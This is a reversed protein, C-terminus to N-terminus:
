ARVQGAAVFERVVATWGRALNARNYGGGGMGLIRGAGYRDAMVCLRRAAHAHAAATFELHAIPDGAMSDAGCQFLIFEPEAAELFAEVREWCQLFREDGMRPRVPINLKTGAAAGAGTESAHGTGPYLARGDEHIDAIFLEPDAEFAYFMGDGHHADIDVYAIRRVGYNNRLIEAAIGCDNFVCFGAAHDRGAHHLGGIPIFGRRAQGAMIADVLTLTAGAVAAAAEYLGAFAPTDGGDLTAQGDRCAQQVFDVYRETHFATLEQRTAPRGNFLRVEAAVGSAALEAHFANHRDPGFPHGAGFGYAATAPDKIVLVQQQEAMQKHAQTKIL